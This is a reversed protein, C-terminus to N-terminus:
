PVFVFRRQMQEALVALFERCNRKMEIVAAAGTGPPSSEYYRKIVAEQQMVGVGLYVEASALWKSNDRPKIASLDTKNVYDRKM